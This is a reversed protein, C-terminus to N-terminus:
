NRTSAPPTAEEWNRTISDASAATVPIGDLLRSTTSTAGNGLPPTFGEIRRLPHCASVTAGDTFYASSTPAGVNTQCVADRSSTRRGFTAICSRAGPRCAYADENTSTTRGGCAISCGAPTM